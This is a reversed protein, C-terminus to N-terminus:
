SNTVVYLVGCEDLCRQMEELTPGVRQGAKKSPLLAQYHGPVYNLFLLNARQEAVTGPKSPYQEGKYVEVGGSASDFIAVALESLLANSGLVFLLFDSFAQVDEGVREGGWDPHTSLVAAEVVRKFHLATSELEPKALERDRLYSRALSLYFCQNRMIEGRENRNTTGVDCVELSLAELCQVQKSLHQALDAGHREFWSAVLTRHERLEFDKAAGTAPLALQPADSLEYDTAKAQGMLALYAHQLRCFEGADGGKDPHNERAKKRYAAKVEDMSAGRPIGLIEEPSLAKGVTKKSRTQHLTIARDMLSRELALRLQGAELEDPNERRM